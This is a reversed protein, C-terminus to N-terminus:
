RSREEHWSGRQSTVALRTGLCDFLFLGARQALGCRICLMLGAEEAEDAADYNKHFRKSRIHHELQRVVVMTIRRNAMAATRQTAREDPRAL